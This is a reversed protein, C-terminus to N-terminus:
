IEEKVGAHEGHQQNPRKGRRQERSGGHARKGAHGEYWKREGYCTAEAPVPKRAERNLADEEQGVERRPIALVEIEEVSCPDREGWDVSGDQGGCENGDDSNSNRCRPAGAAHNETPLRRM